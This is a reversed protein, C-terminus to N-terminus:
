TLHVGFWVAELHVARLARIDLALQRNWHVLTRRSVHIDAAPVFRPFAACELRKAFPPRLARAKAPDM